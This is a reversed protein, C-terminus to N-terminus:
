ARVLILYVTLVNNILQSFVTYVQDLSEDNFNVLVIELTAYYNSM